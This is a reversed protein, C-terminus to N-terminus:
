QPNAQMVKNLARQFAAQPHSALAKCNEGYRNLLVSINDCDPGSQAQLKTMQLKTRAVLTSDELGAHKGTLVALNAMVSAAKDIQESLEPNDKGLCKGSLMYFVTCTTMDQSMYDYALRVNTSEAAQAGIAALSLSTAVALSYRLMLPASRKQSRCAGLSSGIQPKEAIPDHNEVPCGLTEREADM